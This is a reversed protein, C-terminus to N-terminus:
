DHYINKKRGLPQCIDEVKEVRSKLRLVEGFIKVLIAIVILEFIIRIIEM